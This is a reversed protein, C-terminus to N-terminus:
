ALSPRHCDPETLGQVPPSVNVRSEDGHSAAFLLHLHPEDLRVLSSLGIEAGPAVALDPHTHAVHDGDGHVGRVQAPVPV